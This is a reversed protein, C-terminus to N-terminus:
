YTILREGLEEETIFVHLTNEPLFNKAIDPWEIFLPCDSNIYEEFGIDLVESEKDLRYFDFHYVTNYKESEYENVIAFTPSSVDSNIGIVKCLAKIFTTKGAGMEGHFAIIKHTDITLAFTTAVKHIESINNIKLEQM